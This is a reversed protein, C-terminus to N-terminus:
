QLKRKDFEAIKIEAKAKQCKGAKFYADWIDGTEEGDGHLRFLLHPYRKSFDRMDKEWSYWKCSEMVDGREDLAYQADECSARLSTIVAHREIDSEVGKIELSYSTYYGM